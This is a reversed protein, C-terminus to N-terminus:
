AGDDGRPRHLQVGPPLRAFDRDRIAARRRLCAARGGLGCRGFVGVGCGGHLFHLSLSRESTTAASALHTRAGLAVRRGLVIAGRSALNPKGPNADIASRALNPEGPNANIASLALSPEGPNASMAGDNRRHSGSARIAISVAPGGTPAADNWSRRGAG